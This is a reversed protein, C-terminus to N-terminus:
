SMSVTVRRAWRGTTRRGAATLVTMGGATLHEAALQEGFRGSAARGAEDM